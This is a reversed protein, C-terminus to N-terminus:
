KDNEIIDCYYQGEGYKKDNNVDAYNYIEGVLNNKEDYVRTDKTSLLSLYIKVYGNQIDKETINVGFVFHLSGNNLYWYQVSSTSEPINLLDVKLYNRNYEDKEITFRDSVKEDNFRLSVNIIFTYEEGYVDDINTIKIGYTELDEITEGNLIYRLDSPYIKLLHSGIGLREKVRRKDFEFNFDGSQEYAYIEIDQLWNLNYEEYIIDKKIPETGYVLYMNKTYILANNKLPYISDDFISNLTTLMPNSIADDAEYRLLPKAEFGIFLLVETGDDEVIKDLQNEPYSWKYTLYNGFGQNEVGTIEINSFYIKDEPVKLYNSSNIKKFRVKKRNVYESKAFQTTNEGVYITEICDLEVYEEYTIMTLVKLNYELAYYWDEKVINNEMKDFHFDKNIEIEGIKILSDLYKKDISIVMIPPNEAGDYNLTSKITQINVIKGDTDINTLGDDFKNYTTLLDSLKMAWPSFIIDKDYCLPEFQFTMDITEKNDKYLEYEGGIINKSSQTLDHGSIKPLKMIKYSIINSLNDDTEDNIKDFYINKYNLNCIYFGLKNAKGTEIDDVMMYWKQTSGIFDDKVELNYKPQLKDIYVGSSVNDFMKINFCLSDGSVFKNVDSLYHSVVGNYTHSIYGANIQGRDEFFNIAKTKETPVIFSFIQNIPEKDFDNFVFKQNEQENYATNKDMLIMMKNNESRTTSEGYSMLNYTRYRAFVSTFYNKLVYNKTGAYSCNIMKDWISYEKHYIVVDTDDENNYVSGLEQLQSIDTYRANISIGKNGFRNVKEKQFLGDKELLTLSASANDNITIDDRFRNEKSHIVTGNYFANYDVIFFLSKLFISVPKLNILENDIIGEDTKPWDEWWKKNEENSEYPNVVEHRIALRAKSYGSVDYYKEDVGSYEDIYGNNYIGLPYFNNMVGFINQIYSATNDFIQFGESQGNAFWNSPYTYKAGWGEIYNSGIDYGVTMMKYKALEDITKQKITTDEFEDWDQSLLNRESNLKVLKSIDQKCLFIKEEVLNTDPMKVKIKKYYCMYVKNIKYIPYRTELRMNELTLLASNSNRFGMYEVMNCTNDQSLANSYTRKLNDAHNASSRSGSVYNVYKKNLDFPGKRASIDLAYIVDDKVYPIRDKVLMLQSIVDKLSPSNLSFDPSIVNSFVQKVDDSISYKQEFKWTKKNEDDVVKKLPSYLKVFNYLYEYINKKKDKKLPQTISINPLQIVELKKTESMLEVRYTYIGEDLNILEETFQDVLLHKYFKPMEIGPGYGKFESKSDYIFVDDFPMLNRIKKVHPIIITGSDLTENYEEAFTAGQAINYEKGNIKCKLNM